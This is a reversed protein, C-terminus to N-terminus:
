RPRRARVPLRAGCPDDPAPHDLRGGLIPRRLPHPHDDAATGALLGIAPLSTMYVLSCIRDYSSALCPRDERAVQSLLPFIVRGGLIQVCMAPVGALTGSINYIGFMAETLYRAM